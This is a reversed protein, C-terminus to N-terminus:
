VPLVKNFDHATKSNKQYLETSHDRSALNIRHAIAKLGENNINNKELWNNIHIVPVQYSHQGEKTEIQYEDYNFKGASRNEVGKEVKVSM